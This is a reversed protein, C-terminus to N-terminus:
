LQESRKPRKWTCYVTYAEAQSCISRHSDTTYWASISVNEHKGLANKASTKRKKRKWKVCLVTDKWCRKQFVIKKSLYVDNEYFFERFILSIRQIPNNLINRLIDLIIRLVFTLNFKVVVWCLLVACFHGWIYLSTWFPDTAFDFIVLPRRM